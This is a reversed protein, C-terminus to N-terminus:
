PTRSYSFSVYRQNMGAEPWLDCRFRTGRQLPRQDSGDAIPVLEDDRSLSRSGHWVASGTTVTCAFQSAAGLTVAACLAVAVASTAICPCAGLAVSRTKTPV